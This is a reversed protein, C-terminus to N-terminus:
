SILKVYRRISKSIRQYIKREDITVTGDDNFTCQADQWLNGSLAIRKVLQNPQVNTKVTIFGNTFANNVLLAAMIYEQAYKGAYTTTLSTTTAM